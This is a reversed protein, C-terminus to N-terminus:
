CLEGILGAVGGGLGGCIVCGPVSGVACCAAVTAGTVIWGATQGLTCGLSAAQPENMGTYDLLDHLDNMMAGVGALTVEGTWDSPAQDATRRLEVLEGEADFVAETVVDVGGIVGTTTVTRASEVFVLHDTAPGGAPDAGGVVADFDWVCGTAVCTPPVEAPFDVEVSRSGDTMENLDMAVVQLTEGAADLLQILVTDAAADIVVTQAVAGPFAERVEDTIDAEITFADGDSAFTYEREPVPVPGADDSADVSADATEGPGADVQSDPQGADGMPDVTADDGCGVVLLAAALCGWVNWKSTEYKTMTM